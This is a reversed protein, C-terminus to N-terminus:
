KGRTKKGSKKRREAWMKRAREAAAKRAAPSWNRKVKQKGEQKPPRGPGRKTGSGRPRGPGRKVGGVKSLLEEMLRIKEDLDDREAKMTELASSLERAVKDAVM